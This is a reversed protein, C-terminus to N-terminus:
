TIKVIMLFHRFTIKAVSYCGQLNNQEKSAFWFYLCSIQLWTSYKFYKSSLYPDKVTRHNKDVTHNVVIVHLLPTLAGDGRILGFLDTEDM